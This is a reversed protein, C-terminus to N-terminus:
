RIGEVVLDELVMVLHQDDIEARLHGLEDRPAHALGADIALDGGELGGLAGKRLQGGLRHDERAPGARHCVLAGWPSGLGDEVRADGHQADAIALLDHGHLQAALDLRPMVAFEAPGLQLDGLGGGEELAHPLRALAIGHPHAMAVPHGLQRRAEAADRQGFVGGHGGDGVLRATVIRHLEMQLDHMRGIPRLQDGVEDVLDCPQLAVPGHGGEPALGDLRDAGLNALLAPHEAAQRAADIGGHRRHQDVLGDALPQGADEHVMAQHALALGGLDDGEEAVGEVNRKDM